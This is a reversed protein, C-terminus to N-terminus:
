HLSSGEVFQGAKYDGSDVRYYTWWRRGTASAQNSHPCYFIVTDGNDKYCWKKPEFDTTMELNPINNVIESGTPWSPNGEAQNKMYLTTAVAKITRITADDSSNMSDTKLGIVVPISTITIIAIIAIVIILEIFTFSSKVGRKFEKESKM